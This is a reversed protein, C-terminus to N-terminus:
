GVVGYPQYELHGTHEPLLLRSRTRRPGLVKRAHSAAFDVHDIVAAIEVTADAVTKGTETSVLEALSEIRTALLSRWRLMRERRGGFGLGAWWMWAERARTVAAAVAADDSISVRGAEAGTAPNTSVLLGNEVYPLGPTRTATMFTLTPRM